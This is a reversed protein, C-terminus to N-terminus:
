LRHLVHCAASFLCHNGSYRRASPSSGLGPRRPTGGPGRSRLVGPSSPAPFRRWLPRCGTGSLGAFRLPVRLLPSVHFGARIRRAWGAFALYEHSVSLSGTGHPFPSFAGACPLSVSGLSVTRRCATPGRKEPTVAHRKCLSGVLQRGRRPSPRLRGCGCRFSANSRPVHHTPYAPPM